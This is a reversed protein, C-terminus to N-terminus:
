SKSSEPLPDYLGTRFAYLAIGISNVIKLKKFIRKRHTDVTSKRVGFKAAIEDSTMQMCMMLVIKKETKSLQAESFQKMKSKEALYDQYMDRIEAPIYNGGDMVVKFAERIQFALYGKLLYASVGMELFAYVYSKNEHATMVIIKSDRFDRKMVRALEIGNMVPMDIDIFVIDYFGKKLMEIAAFGNEAQDCRSVFPYIGLIVALGKRHSVHDDVILVKVSKLDVGAPKAKRM